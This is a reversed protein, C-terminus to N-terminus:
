YLYFFNVHLILFIKISSTVDCKTFKMNYIENKNIGAHQYKTETITLNQFRPQIM